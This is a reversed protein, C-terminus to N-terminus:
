QTLNMRDLINQYCPNSKLVQAYPTRILYSFNPDYAAVAEEAYRFASEVDDLAAAVFVLTGTPLYRKLRTEELKARFHEADSRRGARVYAFALFATTLLAAAADRVGREALAIGEEHQGMQSYAEGLTLLGPPYNADIELTQRADEAAGDPQGLWLREYAVYVRYLTFLPDLEVARCFDALAEEGRGMCHLVVGRWFYPRASKPNMRVAAQLERRGEEWQYSGFAKVLGFGAYADAFEPDANRAREFLTRAKAWCEIAPLEGWHAAGIYTDALNFLAPAHGPELAVAQELYKRGRELEEPRFRYWLFSGKLYLSHAELNETYRKVLPRDSKAGLKIKLQAVIARAVEDQIEFVDALERDYRDSWVQSEDNVNILQASVRIRNGARRVSGHLVNSVQLKQGIEAIANERGRFSFASARAIVRLGPLGTLANLIEEALGDSFYENDKDSSLNAFPLVAISPLTEAPQAAPGHELACRVEAMTQYRESPQKAMCRKVISALPSDIPDPECRIVANLTDVLSNGGFARRGSLMEYLVAGFSFVESREDVANGQAQEPSMYAATGLLTGDLTAGQTNAMDQSSDAMLKALGFDLLKAGSQTILVNDPKIDRHLIKRGHAFELAGVIQLGIRIAEPTELPGRLPVGEVYELVLYDPGIDHIQCINPHNLAAVARAEQDIRARQESKLRKIAVTRNLRSDRAKWVEGMGGSGISSLIEYPGLQDGPSLSM